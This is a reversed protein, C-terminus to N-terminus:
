ARRSFRGSSCLWLLVGIGVTFVLERIPSPLSAGISLFAGSNETYDIRFAGGLLTYTEGPPISARVIAKSAQDCGVCGVLFIVTVIARSIMRM